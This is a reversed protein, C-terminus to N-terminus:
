SVGNGDPLALVTRPSGYYVYMFRFLLSFQERTVDPEAPTGVAPVTSEAARSLQERLPEWAKKRLQRLVEAVPTEPHQRIFNLLDEATQSAVTEGIRGSTALVGVAGRRLFERAFSRHVRDNFDVVAQGSVGQGIDGSYCANLFVLTEAPDRLREFMYGVAEDLDLDALAAPELGGTRPHGHCAVYVMALAETTASVASRLLEALLRMSATTMLRPFVSRLIGEDPMGDHVYAAATGRCRYDKRFDKVYRRQQVRLTGWRSVTAVAGLWSAPETADSEGELWFVEWPLPYPLDDWIVLQLPAQNHYTRRDDLWEALRDYGQSWSRMRNLIRRPALGNTFVLEDLSISEPKGYVDEGNFPECEPCCVASVKFKQANIDRAQGVENQFITKLLVMGEPLWGDPKVLEFEFLRKEVAPKRRQGNGAADPKGSSATDARPLQASLERSANRARGPIRSVIGVLVDYPHTAV